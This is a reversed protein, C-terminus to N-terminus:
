STLAGCEYRPPRPNLDWGRCWFMKSKQLPVSLYQSSLIIRIYESVGCENATTHPCWAGAANTFSM